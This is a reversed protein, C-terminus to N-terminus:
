KWDDISSPLRSTSAVRPGVSDRRVENVGERVGAIVPSCDADVGQGCFRATSSGGRHAREGEGEQGESRSGVDGFSESLSPTCFSRFWGLKM